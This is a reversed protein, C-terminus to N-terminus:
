DRWIRLSPGPWLCNLRSSAVPVRTYPHAMTDIRHEVGHQVSTASFTPRTLSPYESLLRCFVNDESLSSSFYVLEGKGRVGPISSFTQADVLRGNMIDVLLNHACLFDVGLISFAGM